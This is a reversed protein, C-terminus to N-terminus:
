VVLFEDLDLTCGFTVSNTSACTIKIPTTGTVFTTSGYTANVAGDDIDGAAGGASSAVNVPNAGHALTVSGAAGPVANPSVQMGRVRCSIPVPVYNDGHGLILSVIM